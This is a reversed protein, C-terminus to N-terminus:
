INCLYVGKHNSNRSPFRAIKAILFLIQMGQVTHIKNPKILLSWSKMMMRRRSRVITLVPPTRSPTKLSINRNLSFAQVKCYSFLKRSTVSTKILEMQTKKKSGGTKVM